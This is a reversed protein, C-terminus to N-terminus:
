EVIHSIFLYIYNLILPWSTAWIIYISYISYSLTLRLGLIMKMRSIDVKINMWNKQSSYFMDTTLLTCEFNFATFDKVWSNSHFLYHSPKKKNTKKKCRMFKPSMIVDHSLLNSLKRWFESIDTVLFVILYIVSFCNWAICFLRM